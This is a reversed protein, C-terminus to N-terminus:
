KSDTLVLYELSPKGHEHKGGFDFFEYRTTINSIKFVVTAIPGKLLTPNLINILLRSENM